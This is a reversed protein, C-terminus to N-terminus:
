PSVNRAGARAATRRGRSPSDCADCTGRVQIEFEGKQIARPSTVRDVVIEMTSLCIIDGCRTCVFHPHMPGHPEGRVVEFRWTHDGHDSRRVLGVRALDLLNRYITTRVEEVAGLREFVETHSM